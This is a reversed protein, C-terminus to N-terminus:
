DWVVSEVTMAEVPNDVLKEKKGKVEMQLLLYCIITLITSAVFRYYLYNKFQFNLISFRAMRKPVNEKGLLDMLRYAHTLVVNM